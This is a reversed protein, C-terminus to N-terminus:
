TQETEPRSDAEPKRMLVNLQIASPSCWPSLLTATRGKGYPKHYSHHRSSSPVLHCKNGHRTQPDPRQPVQGLKDPSRELGHALCSAGGTKHAALHQPFCFINKPRNRSPFILSRHICKAIRACMASGHGFQKVPAVLCRDNM